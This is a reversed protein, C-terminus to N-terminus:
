LRTRALLADIRRRVASPARLQCEWIVLYRWGVANLSRQSCKDRARNRTIKQIWYARNRLPIRNGRACSHGHWFCGHVFVVASYRPFVIDPSGPLDRRHLRFRYGLAHALRRVFIEPSTDSSKVARM